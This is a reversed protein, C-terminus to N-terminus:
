SAEEQNTALESVTSTEEEKYCVSPLDSKLELPINVSSGTNRDSHPPVYWFHYEDFKYNDRMLIDYIEYAGYIVIIAMVIGVLVIFVNESLIGSGFLASILLIVVLMIIVNKLVSYQKIYKKEYYENLQIERRKNQLQENIKDTMDSIHSIEGEKMVGNDNGILEEMASINKGVDNVYTLLNNYKTIKDSKNHLHEIMMAQNSKYAQIMQSDLETADEEIKERASLYNSLENNFTSLKQYIDNHQSTDIDNELKSKIESVDKAYSNGITPLFSIDSLGM